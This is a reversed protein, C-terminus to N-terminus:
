DRRIWGTESSRREEREGDSLKGVSREGARVTCTLGSDPLPMYSLPFSSLEDRGIM